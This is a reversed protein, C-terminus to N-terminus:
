SMKSGLGIAQNNEDSESAARGMLVCEIGFWFRGQFKTTGKLRDLRPNGTEIEYFTNQRTNRSKKPAIGVKM